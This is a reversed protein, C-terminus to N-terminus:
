IFCNFNYPSNLICQAVKQRQYPLIIICLLCISVCIFLVNHQFNHGIEIVFDMILHKLVIRKTVLQCIHHRDNVKRECIYLPPFDKQEISNCRNHQFIHSCLPIPCQIIPQTCFGELCTTNYKSGLISTRCFCQGM